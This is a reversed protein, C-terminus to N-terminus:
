GGTYWSPRSISEDVYKFMDKQNSGSKVNWNKIPELSELADDGSFMGSYNLNNSMNWNQLGHLSTIDFNGYFMEHTDEISGTNWNLMSQFSPIKANYFMRGALRLKSVNWTDLGKIDNLFFGCRFMDSAIEMSSVDLKTVDISIANTFISFLSTSDQNAQIADKFIIQRVSGAKVVSRLGTSPMTGSGTIILDGNEYLSATIGTSVEYVDTPQIVYDNLAIKFNLAGTYEGAKRELFTISGNHSSYSAALDKELLDLKDFSVTANKTYTNDHMRSMAITQDAEIQLVKDPAINGKTQVTFDTVDQGTLSITKPILVSFTSAREASITTPQTDTAYAHVSALMSLSLLLPCVTKNM